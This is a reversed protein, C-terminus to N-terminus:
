LTNYVAIYKNIINIYKYKNTISISKHKNKYKNYKPLPSHRNYIGKLCRSVLPQDSLKLYGKITISSSLASKAACLWSYLYGNCYM